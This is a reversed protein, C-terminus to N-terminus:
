QRHPVKMRTTSLSSLLLGRGSEEANRGVRFNSAMYDPTDIDSTFIGHIFLYVVTGEVGKKPYTMM